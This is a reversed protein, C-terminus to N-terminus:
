FKSVLRCPQLSGNGKRIENEKQIGMKKLRVVLTTPKIGLLEAVGDLEYVKRDSKSLGAMTNNRERRGNRAGQGRAGAFEELYVNPVAEGTHTLNNESFFIFLYLLASTCIQFQKRVSRRVRRGRVVASLFEWRGRMLGHM